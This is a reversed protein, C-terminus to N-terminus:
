CFRHKRQGKESYAHEGNIVKNNCSIAMCTILFVQSLDNQCLLKKSMSVKNQTTLFEWLYRESSEPFLLCSIWIQEKNVTYIAYSPSTSEIISRQTYDSLQTHSQTVGHIIARWAGWDMPIRWPLLLPIPQWANELPDEWGVSRVWADRVAPLNKAMQAVLPARVRYYEDKIKFVGYWNNNECSISNNLIGFIDDLM